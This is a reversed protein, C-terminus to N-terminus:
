ASRPRTQKYPTSTAPSKAPTLHAEMEAVMAKTRAEDVEVRLPLRVKGERLVLECWADLLASFITANSSGYVAHIMDLRAKQEATIRFGVQGGDKPLGTKADSKLDM